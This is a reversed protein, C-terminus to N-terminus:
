AAEQHRQIEAKRMAARLEAALSQATESAGPAEWATLFRECEDPSTQVATAELMRWVLGGHAFFTPNM